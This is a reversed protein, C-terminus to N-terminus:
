RGEAECERMCIRLSESENLNLSFRGRAPVRATLRLQETRINRTEINDDLDSRSTIDREVEHIGAM